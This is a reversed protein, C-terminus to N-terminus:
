FSSCIRVLKERSEHLALRSLCMKKSGDFNEGNAAIELSNSNLDYISIQASSFIEGDLNQAKEYDLVSTYAFGNECKIIGRCSNLAFNELTLLSREHSMSELSHSLSSVKSSFSFSFILVLMLVLLISFLMDFSFSARRKFM